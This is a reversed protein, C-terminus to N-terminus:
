IYLSKARNPLCYVFDGIKVCESCWSYENSDSVSDIVECVGTKNDRKMLYNDELSIFWSTDENMYFRDASFYYNSKNM